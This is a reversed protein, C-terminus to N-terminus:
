IGRIEFFEMIRNYIDAAFNYWEIDSLNKIPRIAAIDAPEFFIEDILTDSCIFKPVFNNEMLLQFLPKKELSLGGVNFIKQGHESKSRFFNPLNPMTAMEKQIIGIEENVM